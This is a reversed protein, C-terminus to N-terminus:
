DKVVTSSSDPRILYLIPTSALSVGVVPFAQASDTYYPVVHLFYSEVKEGYWPGSWNVQSLMWRNSSTPQSVAADRM